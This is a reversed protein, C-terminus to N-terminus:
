REQDTRRRTPRTALWAEVQAAPPKEPRMPTKNPPRRVYWAMLLRLATSTDMGAAEAAVSFEAWLDEDARFTRHPTKPKDPVRGRYRTDTCIQSIPSATYM